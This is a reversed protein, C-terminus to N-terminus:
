TFEEMLIVSDYESVTHYVNSLGAYYQENEERYATGTPAHVNITTTNYFYEKIRLTSIRSSLINLNRKIQWSRKLVVFATGRDEAEEGYLLTYETKDILWVWEM